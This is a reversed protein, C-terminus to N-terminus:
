EDHKKTWIYKILGCDWIRDYGLEKAMETETMTLPFGYKKSLKKKNFLMKHLRKYKLDNSSKDSYYKYDPRTFCDFKFGIKTYLNNEHNLTWRRDAFSVIKEPNYTRTFYSFMKGGIGQCVYNYDTAFRTLEWSDNKINGNKFCMVAVLANNYFAGLYVTSSVFGQIHYKELFQFADHKFIEKIVCKRGMIKPLCECIGLIHKLKEFVIQKRNIFEDEFIHILGYGKENCKKTKQLHYDHRKKGFWETHWKLGNFEIGIKKDPILIDIEQGILIQRNTEFDIGNNSLFEQIEKEYKSIFRKKSVSLNGLKVADLTQQKMTNSLINAYPYKEKFEDFSIGHTKIHSETLKEYKNGCIPCVVYNNFDNLKESHKKEKNYKKFYESDDPHETLYEAVMKGHSNKLHQEFAGSTNDVDITEWECYPCKKTKKKYRKEVTFWQEWWYNGTEQYYIRRDYLSPPKVGYVKEIYSTLHGGKNEIDNFVIGNDNSVAVYYYEDTNLYKKKKWDSVVFNRNKKFSSKPRIIGGNKTIIEKAKLKGIKYKECIKTLGCGNNYDLLLSAEDIIKTRSM